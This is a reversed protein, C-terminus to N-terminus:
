VNNDFHTATTDFRANGSTNEPDSSSDAIDPFATHQVGGFSHGCAVLGIMEEKTFGQRDFSAIHEDLSQQPEPVGPNNPQTADIRGGRYAIKPGGSFGLHTLARASCYIFRVPVFWMEIATVAAM